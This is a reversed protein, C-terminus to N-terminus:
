TNQAKIIDSVEQLSIFANGDIEHVIKKLRNIQFHNIIFYIIEKQQKSYGGVANVITGSTGFNDSLADSIKDAKTTVIMACKARNFGEVIYDVTKSGVYHTVISYLPLTWSQIVIGCVVHTVSLRLISNDSLRQACYLQRETLTKSYRSSEGTGNKIAAQIEDRELHNEMASSSAKNDFLVTGDESIYTIRCDEDTFTKLYDEGLSEVAKAALNTEVRLQKMQNDSFYGYLAGMILVFSAIFVTFVAICISSFIQKKM